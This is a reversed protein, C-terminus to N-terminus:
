GHGGDARASRAAQASQVSVRMRAAERPSFRLQGLRLAVIDDAELTARMLGHPSHRLGLIHGIEHAVVAGIIDDHAPMALLARGRAAPRRSLRFVVGAVCPVSILVTGDHENAGHAAVGCAERGDRRNTSSLIVVIEPMAGPETPCPESTCLRWASRVGASSLLTSADTRVRAPLAPDVQSDAYLRVRLAPEDAHASANAQHIATRAPLSVVPDFAASHTPNSNGCM